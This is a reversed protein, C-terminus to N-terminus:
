RFILNKGLLVVFKVIKLVIFLIFIFALNLIIFGIFKIDDTLNLFGFNTQLFELYTNWYIYFPINNINM